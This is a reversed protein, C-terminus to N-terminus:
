NGIGYRPIVQRTLFETVRFNAKFAGIIIEPDFARCSYMDFTIIGHEPWTHCALHSEAIVAVATVGPGSDLPTPLLHSQIGLVTMGTLAAAKELWAVVAHRDALYWTARADLLLHLGQNM